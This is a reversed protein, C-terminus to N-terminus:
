SGGAAPKAYERIKQLWQEPKANKWIFGDAKCEAALKELEREAINSFLIIKLGPISSKLMKCISTGPLGPMQVDCLMLGIQEQFLYDHIVSFNAATFVQYGDRELLHRMIQLIMENDDLCLIKKPQPTPPPTPVARPPPSPAAHRKEIGEQRVMKICRECAARFEKASQYRHEREKELGRFVLEELHAPLGLRQAFPAPPQTLHKLLTQIVTQGRFPVDGTILEYMLVSCSYLDSRADVDSEGSAQEPSMYEPTGIAFGEITVKGSVTGDRVRAIGFDLIRVEERGPEPSVLMINSPKIDRHVIGAKHAADLVDLVQSVIELVRLVPLWGDKEILHQLSVGECFDTAMYYLGNETKGFDRLQVSSPHSFKLLIEAERRFRDIFRQDESLQRNLLKLAYRAKLDAHEVLYVKGYSGEGIERIVNYKGGINM